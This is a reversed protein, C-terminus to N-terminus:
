QYFAQFDKHNKIKISCKDPLLNLLDQLTDGSDALDYQADEDLYKFREGAGICGETEHYYNLGHILIFSRGTVNKVHFHEGFRDSTRKELTYRSPPICSIWTENLVFSPELTVCRYLEQRGRGLVKLRGLTQVGNDRIRTIHVTQESM